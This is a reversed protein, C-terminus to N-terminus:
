KERKVFLCIVLCFFLLSICSLNETVFNTKLVSNVKKWCDRVVIALNKNKNDSRKPFVMWFSVKTTGVDFM